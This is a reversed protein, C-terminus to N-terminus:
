KLGSPALAAHKEATAIQAHEGLARGRGRRAQPSPTLARAATGTEPKSILEGTRVSHPFLFLSLAGNTLRAM